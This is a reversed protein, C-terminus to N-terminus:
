DLDIIRKNTVPNSFWPKIPLDKLWDEITPIYGCDEIIHDEAIDRPSYLKGDSNIRTVGFIREVLYCGVSHHYLARHKINPYSEKSSDLFDHIDQYDEIKGGYKRVSSSSHIFPKM